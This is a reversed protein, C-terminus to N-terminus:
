RNKWADPCTRNEKFWETDALVENNEECIVWTRAEDGCIIVVGNMAEYTKEADNLVVWPVYVEDTYPAIRDIFAQTPFQNAKTDTYESTGACCPICVIEPSIEALLANSGSSVSGHHAGKYFAVEPLDNLAILHEEGAAELDGTFLYHQTGESLMFCVSYDNEDSAKNYYFYSDLITLTIEDTLEIVGDSNEGLFEAATMHNAGAAIEDARERLYNNYMKATDKQNTLAFDIINECVFLDFLSTEATFAAYHDEHAHTVIVYELTNDTVYQNLYDAIPQVSATKAGGDVLIDTEGARIYICDGANYVGPDLFHIQLDGGLPLRDKHEPATAIGYGFFGAVAGLLLALTCLLATLGASFRKVRAM